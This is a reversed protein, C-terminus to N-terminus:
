LLGQPGIVWDWLFCPVWIYNHCHFRPVIFLVLVLRIAKSGRLKLVLYTRVLGGLGVLRGEKLSTIYSRALREGEFLSLLCADTVLFVLAPLFNVDCSVTRRTVLNRREVLILHREAHGEYNRLVRFSNLNIFVSSDNELIRLYNRVLDVHFGEEERVEGFGGHDRLDIVSDCNIHISVCIHEVGLVASLWVLNTGNGHGLGRGV